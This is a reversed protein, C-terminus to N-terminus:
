KIFKEVEPSCPVNTYIHIFGTQYFYNENDVFCLNTRKDKFYSIQNIDKKPYDLNGCGILLIPLLFLKKIMKNGNQDIILGNKM